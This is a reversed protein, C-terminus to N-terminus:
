APPTELGAGTKALAAVWALFAEEDECQNLRRRYEASHSQGRLYWAGHKRMELRATREGKLSQLGRYHELILRARAAMDPEPLTEGTALFHNIHAFVWPRGLAGRGVMVAACGTEDLMRRAEAGTTVDGNGIVPLRVTRVVDAIIEWRARGEFKQSRTRAHVTLAAAGAAEVRKAIETANVQNEDWGARIKVTVPRPSKKVCAAVVAELLEPEKLLASGGRHRVVKPVPCGFNLDVVDAGADALRLSAEAMVEPDAGFLQFSVPKERPDTALMKLTQPQRRVLGHCSVMETCVLAAGFRRCMLRFPLNGIGALPALIAQGQIEVDGIRM